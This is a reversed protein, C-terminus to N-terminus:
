PLRGQARLEAELATIRSRAEDDEPIPSGGDRWAVAAKFGHVQAERRFWLGEPGHRTVGDFLTAFMQSQELGMALLAQNVVMKHMALHSKPVAAIRRALALTAAEREAEPVVVNALGWEAARAGDIMDGTFLMQKARAPGLRYLWMATTPCGWVRAPPYGIRADEAMVLLDCSLAIDSGGALAVGHVSAITPKRSRWLSMFDDTYGKMVAYDDTPQWPTKEQQCPHDVIGEGFAQLDYGACFARGAGDLVIVHVEPTAEAWAVAARIEGPMRGDIANLREPRALTIRAIRPEAPDTRLQLTHFPPPPTPM